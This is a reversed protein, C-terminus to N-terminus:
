RIAICILIGIKYVVARDPVSAADNWFLLHLQHGPGCPVALFVGLGRRLVLWVIGWKVSVFLCVFVMMKGSRGIM